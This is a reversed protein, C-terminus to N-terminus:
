GKAGEILRNMVKVMRGFSDDFCSYLCAVIYDANLPKSENLPSDFHDNYQVYVGRKVRRSPEVTVLIKGSKKDTRHGLIKLSAMGPADLIESWIDKPALKHGFAHWQEESDLMYHREWNIGMSKIPTHNLVKFAGAITDRLKEFYPAKTTTAQFRDQTVLITGFDMEFNSVQPQIIRIKDASM